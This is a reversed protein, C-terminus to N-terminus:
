QLSPYLKETFDINYAKCAMEATCTSLDANYNLLLCLYHKFSHTIFLFTAIWTQGKPTSQEQNVTNRTRKRSDRPIPADWKLPSDANMCHYTEKM